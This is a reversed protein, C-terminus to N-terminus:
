ARGILGRLATEKRVQERRSDFLAPPVVRDRCEAATLGCRECTLNVEVRELKPDDWFRLARRLRRNCLFAVSVGSAADARLALRRAMTLVFFETDEELFYTRQGAVLFQDPRELRGSLTQLLKLVPWRRCYHERLAIGQPVSVRSTNLWKTLRYVGSGIRTSFRVFYFEDLGFVKPIVQTLRTLFTEPTVGYGEMCASVGESSWSESSFLEKLERRLRERDMLLAGAFYSAKFNNLVQEFSEVEVWSSSVAREGLDLHRYGIERALVFAQQSPMLRRNVYLTMPPGWAFVSRFGSLDPKSALEEYDLLYGWRRRLIASLRGPDVMEEAPWGEARRFRAAEKELEAFYNSNMQQYARLAALLFHEVHVDYTLGIEGLARLLAGGKLPDGTVLNFLDEPELGFLEFPFERLLPSSFAVKLPGLDETVKLSVLDDFPVALAEALLLLKEPKPYKKGKEIESLYSISLGARSALSQLTEGREHRLNRVKLGLILRPGSANSM